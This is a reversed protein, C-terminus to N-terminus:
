SWRRWRGPPGAGPTATRRRLMRAAGSAVATRGAPAFQEDQPLGEVTGVDQARRLLARWVPDTALLLLNGVVVLLSRARSLAVNTRQPHGVFGLMFRLDVLLHEARARVECCAPPDQQATRLVQSRGPPDSGHRPSPAGGPLASFPMSLFDEM